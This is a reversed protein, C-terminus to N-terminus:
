RPRRVVRHGSSGIEARIEGVAKPNQTAFRRVISKIVEPSLDDPHDGAAAYARELLDSLRRLQEDGTIARVREAIVVLLEEHRRKSKGASLTVYHKRVRGLKEVSQDVQSRIEDVTTVPNQGYWQPVVTGILSVSTLGFAAQKLQRQIRAIHRAAERAADQKAHSLKTSNVYFFLMVILWESRVGEATLEELAKRAVPFRRLEKEFKKRWKRAHPGFPLLETPEEQDGFEDAATKGDPVRDVFWPPLENTEWFPGDFEYEPTKKRM